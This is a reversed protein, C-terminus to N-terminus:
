QIQLYNHFGKQLNHQAISYPMLTRFYLFSISLTLNKRSEPLSFFKM